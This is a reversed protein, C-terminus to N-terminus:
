SSRPARRRPPREPKAPLSAAYAMARELWGALAEDDEVIAAPLVVYERFTVDRGPTFPAAGPLALAERRAAEPLRVFWGSSHTGTFLQGNVWAGPCGFMSRRDAEPYDALVAAFRDALERPPKV